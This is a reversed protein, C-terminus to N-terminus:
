QFSVRYVNTKKKDLFFTFCKVYETHISTVDYIIFVKNKNKESKKEGGM